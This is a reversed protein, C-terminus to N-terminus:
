RVARQRVQAASREVRWAVVQRAHEHAGFARQANRGLYDEADDLPGFADMSQERRKSGRAVGPGRHAPDDGRAHQRSRNFHHVVEGDLGSFRSHVGIIGVATPQQQHLEVPRRRFDFRQHSLHFFDAPLAAGPLNAHRLRLRLAGHHPLSTFRREGRHAANRWIVDHLIAHDRARRQRADHAFDLPEARLRSDSYGIHKVRAVAVQMRQNEIIAPDFPLLM